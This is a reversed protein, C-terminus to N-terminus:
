KEPQLESHLSPSAYYYTKPFCADQLLSHGLVRFSRIREERTDSEYIVTLQGMLISAPKDMTVFPREFDITQLFTGADTGKLSVVGSQAPVSGIPTFNVSRVAGLPIEEYGGDTAQIRLTQMERSREYMVPSEVPKLRQGPSVTVFTGTGWCRLGQCWYLGTWAGVDKRVVNAVRAMFTAGATGSAVECGILTLRSGFVGNSAYQIWSSENDASMYKDAGNIVMGSGTVITGPAGHGVIWSVEAPNSRLNSFAQATTSYLSVAVNTSSRYSETACGLFGDDNRSADISAM